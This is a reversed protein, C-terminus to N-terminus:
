YLQEHSTRMKLLSMVTRNHPIAALLLTDRWWHRGLHHVQIQARGEYMLTWSMREDLGNSEPLYDSLM